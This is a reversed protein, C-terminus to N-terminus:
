LIKTCWEYTTNVVLLCCSRIKRHDSPAMTYVACATLMKRHWINHVTSYSASCSVNTWQKSSHQLFSSQVIRCYHMLNLTQCVHIIKAQKSQTAFPM